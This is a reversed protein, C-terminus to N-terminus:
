NNAMWEGIVEKKQQQQQICWCYRKRIQKFLQSIPQLTLTM